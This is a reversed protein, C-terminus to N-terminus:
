AVTVAFKIDFTIDKGAVLLYDGRSEPEDLTVEVIVTVAEGNLAIGQAAEIVNVNAYKNGLENNGDIAINSIEAALYGLTGEAAKRDETWTVTYTLRVSRSGENSDDARWPSM